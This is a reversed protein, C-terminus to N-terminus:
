WSCSPSCPLRYCWSSPPWSVASRCALRCRTAGYMERIKFTPMEQRITLHASSVFGDLVLALFGLMGVIYMAATMMIAGLRRPQEVTLDHPILFLGGQACGSVFTDVVEDAPALMVARALVEEREIPNLLLLM